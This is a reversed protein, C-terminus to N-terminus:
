LYLWKDVGSKRLADVVDAIEGRGNLRIRDTGRTPSPGILAFSAGGSNLPEVLLHKDDAIRWEVSLTGESFRGLIPEGLDQFIDMLKIFGRVSELSLPQDNSALDDTSLLESISEASENLGRRKLAVIADEFSTLKTSLFSSSFEELANKLLEEIAKRIALHEDQTLSASVPQGGYGWIKESRQGATVFATSPSEIAGYARKEKRSLFSIIQVTDMIKLAPGIGIGIPMGSMAYGTYGHRTDATHTPFEELLPLLFPAGLGDKPSIVGIATNM